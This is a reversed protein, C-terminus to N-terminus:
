KGGLKKSKLEAMRMTKYNIKVKVVKSKQGNRNKAVFLRLQPTDSNYEDMQQNASVVYDMPMMKGYSEAVRNVGILGGGPGTKAKPDERNTQTATFILLNENRAVGRIQTSVQKQKTYDNQNDSSRRSILLELYDIVLVDPHWGNQRRLQSVLQYVHDVSVEDPPFEFIKLDGSYSNRSKELARIMQARNQPEFRRHIEVNSIAGAYRLATKVKSLELTIHLVNAGRKMCAIGSHPLLISKGVGTPAMWCFVEGKSPGNGEICRDLESFGCTYVDRKEKDFLKQSEDFFNMGNTSVDTIKRANEFIEELKDYDHHEYALIGEESYLMGFARDRTWALLEKKVFPVERKDMERDIIELIREYDDDVTLEKLTVDRVAGKTPMSGTDRFLREIVGMVFSTEAMRFFKHSLHNAITAFFDPNEFALSIISKETNPGFPASEGVEEIAQLDSMFKLYSDPPQEAFKNGRLQPM